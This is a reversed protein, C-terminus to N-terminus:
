IFVLAAGLTVIGLGQCIFAARLDWAKRENVRRSEILAVAMAQATRQTGTWHWSQWAKDNTTLGLLAEAGIDRRVRPVQVLVAFVAAWLLLLIAEIVLLHSVPQLAIGNGIAGAALGFLVTVLAGSATLSGSARREL